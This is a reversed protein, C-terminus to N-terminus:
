KGVVEKVLLSANKFHCRSKLGDPEAHQSPESNKFLAESQAASLTKM